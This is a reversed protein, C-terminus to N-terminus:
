AGGGPLSTQLFSSGEDALIPPAPTAEVLFAEPVALVRGPASEFHVHYVVDVACAGNAEGHEGHTVRLVRLVEGPCGREIRLAGGALVLTRAARVRERSEYRSPVWDEDAGILEEERCGVLRDDELFHVTYIVQTQLFLGVDVVTGVRGRRILLDGRQGGAFTGDNRVNCTVRVADGLDWRFSM